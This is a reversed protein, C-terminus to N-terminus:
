RLAKRSPHNASDSDAQTRRRDVANGNAPNYALWRGPDNAWAWFPWGDAEKGTAHAFFKQMSARCAASPDTPNEARAWAVAGQARDYDSHQIQTYTGGGRALRLESFLRKLDASDFMSVSGVTGVAGAPVGAPARSPPAPSAHVSDVLTDVPKDRVVVPVPYTRESTANGGRQLRKRDREYERKAELKVEHVEKLAQEQFVAYDHIEFHDGRDHWLGSECLRRALAPTKRALPAYLFGLMDKAIRGNLHHMNSYCISAHWLWAAEAGARILKPHSPSQCDFRAWLM